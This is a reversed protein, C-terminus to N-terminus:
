GRWAGSFYLIYPFNGQAAARMMDLPRMLFRPFFPTNLGVVGAVRHPALQAMQWVVFGGWDHGVIVAKEIALADLLGTLDGVLHPLTYAEIVQPADTNRYGRQDPAIARFGAEALAKMQHRWSHWLEPFGRCLIVPFGSGAEAVHM